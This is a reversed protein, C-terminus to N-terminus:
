RGRGSRRGEMDEPQNGNGQREAARQVLGEAMQALEMYQTPDLSEIFDIYDDVHDHMLETQSTARVDIVRHIESRDLSQDALMELVGGMSSDKRNAHREDKHSDRLADLEAEQPETLEVQDMLRMFPAGKQGQRQESGKGQGEGRYKGQEQSMSQPEAEPDAFAQLGIVALAGVSTFGAAMTIKRINM